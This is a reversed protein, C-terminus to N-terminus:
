QAAFPLFVIVDVADPLYGISCTFQRFSKQKKQFLPPIACLARSFIGGATFKTMNKATVLMQAKACTHM